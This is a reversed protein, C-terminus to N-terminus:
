VFYVTHPPFLFAFIAIHNSIDFPQQRQILALWALPRPSCPSNSHNTRENILWCRFTGLAITHLKDYGCIM